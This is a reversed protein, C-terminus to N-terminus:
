CKWILIKINRNMMWNKTLYKNTKIRMRSIIENNINKEDNYNVNEINVYKKLKFFKRIIYNRKWFWKAFINFIFITKKLFNNREINWNSNNINKIKINNNILKFNMTNINTIVINISIIM